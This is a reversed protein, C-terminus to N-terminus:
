GPHVVDRSEVALLREFEEPTVFDNELPRDKPRLRNLDERDAIDRAQSLLHQHGLHVGDFNGIAVVSKKM